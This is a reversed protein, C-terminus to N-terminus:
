PPPQSILAALCRCHFNHWDLYWCAKVLVILLMHTSAVGWVETRLLQRINLKLGITFLLLTVGLEAIESLFAGGQAGGLNLLFGAVLFGVLPPLNLQKAALGLLLAITIWLPDNYNLSISLADTM